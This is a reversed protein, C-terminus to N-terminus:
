SLSWKSPEVCTGANVTTITENLFAQADKQRKLGGKSAQRRASTQPDAPLDWIATWSHGRKRTSGRM